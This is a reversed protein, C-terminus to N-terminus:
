CQLLAGAAPEGGGEVGGTSGVSWGRPRVEGVNDSYGLGYSLWVVQEFM